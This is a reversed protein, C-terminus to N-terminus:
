RQCRSTRTDRMEVNDTLGRLSTSVDQASIHLSYEIEQSSAREADKPELRYRLPLSTGLSVPLQLRRSSFIARDYPVQVLM